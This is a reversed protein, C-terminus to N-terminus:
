ANKVGQDNERLWKYVDDWWEVLKSFDLALQNKEEKIFKHKPDPLMCFKDKVESSEFKVLIHGPTHTKIM